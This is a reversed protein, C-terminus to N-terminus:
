KSREFIQRPAILREAAALLANKLELVHTETTLYSIVMTRIASREAVTTLSIWRQGSRNVEEVLARNAAAIEAEGANQLNVRFVIAPLVQPAVLEFRKSENVWQAFGAALKMQKDILAEYSVRGHVRLTMWLKLSNMRRSWQSSIQFNDELEPSQSAQLYPAKTGYAQRLLEPHTTLLMGASFPMALWKHPDLSVSDALEIGQALSRYRDSFIVAAGYAGDVHFWLGYQKSIEAMWMLNDIAGANTTGATGVVCFPLYGRELDSRIARELRDLDIQMQDTVEIRRLAHRGLGLMGAAKDLSHHSESSAYFVAPAKLSQLGCDIVAPNLKVLALQLATLNAESGGTTFTGGFRQKWGIRQGVWDVTQREISSAAASREVSALQPNLAAVLTEALVSIFTPTPNMLGLYNASAIHFGKELLDDFVREFTIEPDEGWEPIPEPSYMSRRQRRPLQVARHSLSGYYENIKDVLMYGLRRRMSYDLDFTTETPQL